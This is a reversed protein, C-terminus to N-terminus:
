KKRCEYHNEQFLHGLSSLEDICIPLTLLEIDMCVPCFMVLKDDIQKLRTKNSRDIERNLLINDLIVSILENAVGKLRYNKELESKSFKCNIYKERRRMRKQKNRCDICPTQYKMRRKDYWFSSLPKEIACKTCIIKGHQVCLNKEEGM